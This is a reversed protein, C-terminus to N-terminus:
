VVAHRDFITTARITLAIQPEFRPAVRRVMATFVTHQHIRRALVSQLVVHMAHYAGPPHGQRLALRDKEAVPHIRIAGVDVWPSGLWSDTKHPTITTAVEDIARLWAKM